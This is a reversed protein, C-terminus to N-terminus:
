PHRVFVIMTLGASDEVHCSSSNTYDYVLLQAVADYRLSDIEANFVDLMRLAPIIEKPTHLFILHFFSFGLSTTDFYIAFSMRYSGTFTMEYRCFVVARM